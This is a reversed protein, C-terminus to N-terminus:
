ASARSVNAIDRLRVALGDQINAGCVLPERLFRYQLSTVLEYDFPGRRASSLILQEAPPGAEIRAGGGGCHAACASLM